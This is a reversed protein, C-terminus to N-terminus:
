YGKQRPMLERRVTVKLIEFWSVTYLPSEGLGLFANETLSHLKNNALILTSLSFVISVYTM